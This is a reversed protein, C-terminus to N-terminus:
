SRRRLAWLGLAAGFATFPWPAGVPAGPVDCGCGGKKKQETEIPGADVGADADPVVGSLGLAPVPTMVVNAPKIRKRDKEALDEAVWIKRLGRYTRPAKGWRFREPKECKMMGKWPHFFIYRTQLKSEKGPKVDTPIEGAEGKPLRAGGEVHGNAPGLEPDKPMNQGDYRHHLRSVVYQQREILAKRRLIEKRELQHEKKAKPRDEPKMEELKAKLAKEEDETMEPPEPHKEEDAVYQELVDGGLSLLEHPLLPENQCPQGCGKSPWAFETVFANPNKELMMDHLAGYFEGMKEKVIFDVRINTPAFVNPYNKAEYRKDPDLVYILLEQKGPSNALGMRSPIAKFPQETWFRIPSLQAVTGGILETRKTDVELILVNMGASIQSDLSKAPEAGLVYGKGKLWAPATKAEDGALLTMTYEGDKFDPDVKIFLEKAVKPASPDPAPGGLFDTTASAMMSREWEQEPPGPECPDMEWFEHFRPATLKEVRDVYEMKLTKVRELTVDSPVPVVWAFPVLPGEYDPAYSVVTTDGKKVVVVHATHAILKDTNKGVYVGPLADAAVPSLLAAAVVLLGGTGPIKRIM